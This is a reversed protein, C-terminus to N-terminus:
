RSDRLLRKLVKGAPSRPLRDVFEVSKPKKYGALRCKCYDIVDEETLHFGAKLSVVAHVREGWVPDPLGVVAAESIAEHGYLVEEIERPYVNEGGSIIMDKKRDVLYLFGDEDLRGLDGTHLWGARITRATEDPDRFYAEMVNPGRVVVEGVRDTAADRGREDVVRVEVNTFARGVCATKDLVYRPKLTTIAAATETMGYTEGLKAHPFLTMLKRKTELPMAEAGSSISAVSSTDYRDLDPLQLIFNWVTPPFAMKSVRERVMVEMVSRPHFEAMSVLTCGMYLSTNLLSFAAAHYLPFVLMVRYDEEFESDQALNIAAWVCNRHSLLVGKPRGTTGATYLICAPDREDIKGPIGDPKEGDMLANLDATGGRGRCTLWRRVEPLEGMIRDATEQFQPGYIVTEASSHRIIYVLEGPALRVNLPVLVAGLKLLALYTELVDRGNLFLTAVHDGPKVGLGALARARRNSNEAWERFTWRGEECVFAEKDPFKAACRDLLYPLTTAIM